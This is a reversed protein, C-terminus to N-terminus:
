GGRRAAAGLLGSRGAAPPSVEPREQQVPRTRCPQGHALPLAHVDARNEGRPCARREDASGFGLAAFLRRRPGVAVAGPSRGPGRGGPPRPRGAAPRRRVEGPGGCRHALDVAPRGRDHRRVRRRRAARRGAAQRGAGVLDGRGLREGEGGVVTRGLSVTRGQGSPAPGPTRLVVDLGANRHTRGSANATGNPCRLIASATSPPILRERRRLRFPCTACVLVPLAVILLHFGHSRANFSM